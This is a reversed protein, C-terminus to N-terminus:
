SPLDLPKVAGFPGECVDRTNSTMWVDITAAEANDKTATCPVPVGKPSGMSILARPAANVCGLPVIGLTAAVPLTLAVYPCVSPAAPTVPVGYVCICLGIIMGECQTVDDQARHAVSVVKNKIEVSGQPMEHM